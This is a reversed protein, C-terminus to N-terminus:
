RARDTRANEWECKGAAAAGGGGGRGRGRRRRRRRPPRGAVPQQQAESRFFSGGERVGRTQLRGRKRAQPGAEAFEGVVVRRALLLRGGRGRRGDV